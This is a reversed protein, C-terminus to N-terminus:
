CLGKRQIIKEMGRFILVPDYTAQLYSAIIPGDGGTIYIRQGQSKLWTVLPAIMGYELAEKTNKPLRDLDVEWSPEFELRSSISGLARRSAEIGPTIFGGQHIRSRMVDVTIASGADVIVGDEVANCLVKRDVGLGEYDSDLEVFPEIDIWREYSIQVRDNVSIYCVREDKYRALEEFGVSWLRTGDYLKARTNGIDCLLM